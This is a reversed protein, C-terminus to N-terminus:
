EGGEISELLNEAYDVIYKIDGVDAFLKGDYLMAVTNLLQIMEPVKSIALADIEAKPFGGPIKCVLHGRSNFIRMYGELLPEKWWRDLTIKLKSM